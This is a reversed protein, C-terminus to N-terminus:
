NFPVFRAKHAAAMCIYVGNTRDRKKTLPFRANDIRLLEHGSVNHKISLDFPAAHQCNQLNLSM